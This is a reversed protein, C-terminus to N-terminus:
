LSQKRKSSKPQLQVGTSGIFEIGAEELAVQIAVLAKRDKITLTGDGEIWELTFDPVYAERALARATWGMMARAARIQAGSIMHQSAPAEFREPRKMALAERDVRGFTRLQEKWNPQM